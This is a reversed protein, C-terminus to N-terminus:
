MRVIAGDLSIRCLEVLYWEDGMEIRDPVWINDVKSDFCDGCHLGGCYTDLGFRIDCQESEKDYFLVGVRKEGM